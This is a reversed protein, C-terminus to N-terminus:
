RIKFTFFLTIPIKLFFLILLGFKLSETLVKSSLIVLEIFFKFNLLFLDITATLPPMSGVILM